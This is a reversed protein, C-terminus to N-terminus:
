GARRVVARAQHRAQAPLFCAPADELVQRGIELVPRQRAVRALRQGDDVLGDIEVLEPRAGPLNVNQAARAARQWRLHMLLARGLLEAAGVALNIGVVIWHQRVSIFYGAIEEGAVLKPWGEKGERLSEESVQWPACRDAM